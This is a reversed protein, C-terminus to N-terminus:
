APEEKAMVQSVLWDFNTEKVWVSKHHPLVVGSDCFIPFGAGRIRESFILDESIWRGNVPGDAFWAWEAGTTEAFRDRIATLVRRHLLLCGTAAADVEFLSDRPYEFAPIFTGDPLKGFVVPIPTVWVDHSWAAFYLGSIVPRELQDAAACLRDFQQVTISLDTDLMLLWPETCESLFRHVVENRMRSLLGSGENRILPGLKRPRSAALSMMDAAFRGDVQGPDCWGIVVKDEKRM